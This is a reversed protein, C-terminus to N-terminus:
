TLLVVCGGFIDAADGLFCADFRKHQRAKSRSDVADVVFGPAGRHRLVELALDDDALNLQQTLHCFSPAHRRQTLFPLRQRAALQRSQGPSCVNDPQRPVDSFHRGSHLHRQQEHKSNPYWATFFCGHRDGTLGIRSLVHLCDKRWAHYRRRM